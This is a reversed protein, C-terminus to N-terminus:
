SWATQDPSSEYLMEPDMSECGYTGPNGHDKFHAPVEADSVELSRFIGSMEKIDTAVSDQPMSEGREAFDRVARVIPPYGENNPLWWGTVDVAWIDTM